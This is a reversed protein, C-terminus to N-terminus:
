SERPLPARTDPSPAARADTPSRVHAGFVGGVSPCSSLGPVMGVAAIRLPLPGHDSAALAVFPVSHSLHLNGALWGNGGLGM